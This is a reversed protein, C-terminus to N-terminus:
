VTGGIGLCAVPWRLWGSETRCCVGGSLATVGAAGATDLSGSGGSFHARRAVTGFRARTGM